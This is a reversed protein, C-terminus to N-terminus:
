QWLSPQFFFFFGKFGSIWFRPLQVIFIIHVCPRKMFVTKKRVGSKLLGQLGGSQIGSIGVNVKVACWAGLLIGKCRRCVTLNFFGSISNFTNWLSKMHPTRNRNLSQLSRRKKERNFVDRGIFSRTARSFFGRTGFTPTELRRVCVNEKVPFSLIGLDRLGSIVAKTAKMGCPVIRVKRGPGM